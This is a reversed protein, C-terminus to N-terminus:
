RPFHRLAGSSVYVYADRRLILTASVSTFVIASLYINTGSAM